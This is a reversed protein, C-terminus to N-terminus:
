PLERGLLGPLVLLLPLLMGALSLRNFDRSGAIQFTLSQGPGILGDPTTHIEMVLEPVSALLGALGGTAGGEALDALEPLPAEGLTFYAIDGTHTAALIPTFYQGQTINTITVEYVRAHPSGNGNHNGNDAWALPGAALLLAGLSFITRNM